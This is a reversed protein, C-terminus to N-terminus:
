PRFSPPTTSFPTPLTVPRTLGLLIFEIPRRCLSLDCNFEFLASQVENLVSSLIIHLSNFIDDRSLCHNSPFSVVGQRGRCRILLDASLQVAAVTIAWIAWFLSGLAPSFRVFGSSFTLTSSFCTPSLALRQMRASPRFCCRLLM